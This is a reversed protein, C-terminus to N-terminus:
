PMSGIPHPWASHLSRWAPWRPVSPEASISAWATSPSQRVSSRRQYSSSTRDGAVGADDLITAIGSLSLFTLLWTPTIWDLWVFIAFLAAVAVAAIQMAILLRRRDVIDALAGAPLSFLFMPLTAAAQVLAVEFPEPSLGTM